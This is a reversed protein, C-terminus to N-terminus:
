VERKINFSMWRHGPIWVLMTVSQPLDVGKETEM